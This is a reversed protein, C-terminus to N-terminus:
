RIGELLAVEYNRFITESKFGAEKLWAVMSDAPHPININNWHHIWQKRCEEDEVHAMMHEITAKRALERLCLDNFTTLDLMLFRGGPLLRNYILRFIEKKDKEDLHHICFASVIVHVKRNFNKIFETNDSKILTVRKEFSKLRTRAADIMEDFLDIGIIKANPLNRLIYASTVGSGVGLDIIEIEQERDFHLSAVLM